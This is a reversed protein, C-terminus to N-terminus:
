GPLHAGFPPVSFRGASWAVYLTRGVYPPAGTVSLADDIYDGFIPVIISTSNLWNSAVTTIRVNSRLPRTALPRVGLVADVSTRATTPSTRSYWAVGLRGAATAMRLAPLM